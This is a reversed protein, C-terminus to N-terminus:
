DRVVHDTQVREEHAKDVSLQHKGLTELTGIWNYMIRKIERRVAVQFHLEPATLKEDLDSITDLQLLLSIIEEKADGWSPHGVLDGFGRAKRLLAATAKDREM